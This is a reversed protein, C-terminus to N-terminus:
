SLWIYLQHDEIKVIVKYEDNKNLGFSQRRKDIVYNRSCPDDLLSDYKFHIKLFRLKALSALFIDIIPVSDDISYVEIEIVTLSPFRQVFKSAYKLPFYLGDAVLDLVNLQKFTESLTPNDFIIPLFLLSSSMALKKVNPCALLVHIVAHLRTLIKDPAFEVADVTSLDILSSLNDLCQQSDDDNKYFPMLIRTLWTLTNELFLLIAPKPFTLYFILHKVNQFPPINSSHIIPTTTKKTMFFRMEHHNSHFYHDHLNSTNTSRMDFTDSITITRIRAERRVTLHNYNLTRLNIHEFPHYPSVKWRNIGIQCQYYLKVFCRFSNLIENLDIAMGSTIFSIYFDFKTLYPVYTTLIEQWNKGNTLDMIFPSINFDVILTFVFRHLNPMCRLILGISRIDCRAMVIQLDFSKLSSSIPLSTEDIPPLSPVNIYSNDTDLLETTKIAVWLHRLAGHMRFIPILSYISISDSTGYFIMRLHTLNTTTILGTGILSHDYYFYLDASRLTSPPDTLIWQSFEQAAYIGLKDEEVNNSQVLRFLVIKTLKKLQEFVIKLKPSSIM